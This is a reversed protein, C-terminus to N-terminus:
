TLPELCSPQSLIDQMCLFIYAVTDFYSLKLGKAISRILFSLPGIGFGYNRTMELGKWKESGKWRQICHCGEEAVLLGEAGSSLSMEEWKGGVM